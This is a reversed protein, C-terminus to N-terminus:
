HSVRLLSIVCVSGDEAPTTASYDLQNYVGGHFSFRQADWSDDMQLLGSTARKGDCSATVSAAGAATVEITVAFAVGLPVGSLLTSNVPTPQNFDERFGLTIKGQNWFVKIVPSDDDKVHMQAVVVKQAANVQLLRMHQQNRHLAASALTWYRPEKWECRTRKTSKSSAGRTPATLRIAGDPERSVVQPVRQLAEAGSLELALPNSASIPLPTAITLTNLVVAM